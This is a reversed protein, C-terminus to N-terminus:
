IDIIKLINGKMEEFEEDAIKLYELIYSKVMNQYMLPMQKITQYISALFLQLAGLQQDNNRFRSNGNSPQKAQYVQDHTRLHIPVSVRMSAVHNCPIGNNGGRNTPQQGSHFEQIRYCRSTENNPENNGTNNRDHKVFIIYAGDNPQNNSASQGIAYNGFNRAFRASMSQIGTSNSSTTVGNNVISKPLQTSSNGCASSTVQSSNNNLANNLPPTSGKNDDNTSSPTSVNNGANSTSTTRGKKCLSPTSGNNNANSTSPTSGNKLTNSTLPTTDNNEGDSTSSTSGSGEDSSSGESSSGNNDPNSTLSTSINKGGNSKSPMCVNNSASLTNGNNSTSPIASNNNPNEDESSDDNALEESTMVDIMDWDVASSPNGSDGHNTNSPGADNNNSSRTGPQTSTGEMGNKGSDRTSPMNGNKCHGNAVPITEGNGVNGVSLKPSSNKEPRSACASAVRKRPKCSVKVKKKRKKGEVTSPPPPADPDPKMNRITNRILYESVISPHEAASQQSSDDDSIIEQKIMPFYEFETDSSASRANALLRSFLM